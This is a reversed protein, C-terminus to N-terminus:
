LNLGPLFNPSPHGSAVSLFFNLFLLSGPISRSYLFGFDGSFFNRFVCFVVISQFWFFLLYRIIFVVALAFSVVAKATTNIILSNLV